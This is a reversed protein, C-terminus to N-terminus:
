LCPEPLLLTLSWFCLSVSFNCLFLAPVLSVRPIVVVTYVCIVLCPLLAFTSSILAPCVILVPLFIVFAPLTTCSLVSSSFVM